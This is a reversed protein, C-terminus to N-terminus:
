EGKAILVQLLCEALARKADKLVVRVSDFDDMNPDACWKDGYENTRILCIKYEVVLPMLDNWNNCYDVYRSEQYLWVKSDETQSQGRVDFGILEAILINLKFDGLKSVQEQTLKNM